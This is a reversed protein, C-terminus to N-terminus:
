AAVEYPNYVMVGALDFVKGNYSLRARKVGDVYISASYGDSAGYNNTVIFRSWVSSAQNLTEVPVIMMRKGKGFRLEMRCSKLSEIANM